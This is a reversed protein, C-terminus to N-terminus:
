PASILDVNGITVAIADQRYKRALAELRPRHHDYAARSVNALTLTYSDEVVDDWYGTVDGYTVILGYPSLDEIDVVIAQLELRFGEWDYRNMPVDGVNRGITFVANM